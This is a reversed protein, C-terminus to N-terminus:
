GIAVPQQGALRLIAREFRHEFALPLKIVRGQFFAPQPMLTRLLSPSRRWWHGCQPKDISRSRLAALFM